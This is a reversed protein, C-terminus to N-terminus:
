RDDWGHARLFEHVSPNDLSLPPMYDAVREREWYQGDKLSKSFQYRYL